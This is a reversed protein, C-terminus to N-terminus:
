QYGEEFTKLCEGGGKGFSGVAGGHRLCSEVELARCEQGMPPKRPRVPQQEGQAGAHLIGMGWGMRAHTKHDANQLETRPVRTRHSLGIAKM